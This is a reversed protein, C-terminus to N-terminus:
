IIHESNIYKNFIGTDEYIEKPLNDLKTWSWKIDRDYIDKGSIVRETLKKIDTYESKNFRQDHGSLIKEQIGKIGGNAHSFHWGGNEIVKGEMNRIQQPTYNKFLGYPMMKTGKWKIDCKLNFFYYYFEQNFVCIANDNTILSPRPIEDVDSLMIINNDNIDNLGRTVQNRVFFEREEGCTKPIDDLIVHIIKNNWNTYRNKNIDYHLPKKEGLFNTTCEVLVFKDVFPDLIRLRLELIDLENFFIFTDYIM